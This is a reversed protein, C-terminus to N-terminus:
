SRTRGVTVHEVGVEFVRCDAVRQQSLVRVRVEDIPPSGARTPMRTWREAKTGTPLSVNAVVSVENAAYEGVEGMLVAADLYPAADVGAVLIMKAMLARVRANVQGRLSVPHTTLAMVIPSADEESATAYTVGWATDGDWHVVRGQSPGSVGVALDPQVGFTTDVAGSVYPAELQVVNTTPLTSQTSWVKDITHFVMTNSAFSNRDGSGHIIIRDRLVSLATLTGGEGSRGSSAFLRKYLREVGTERTVNVLGSTTLRYLGKWGAFYVGEDTVVPQGGMLGDDLTVTDVSAGVDRGDSEVAGRVVFVGREKFVFLSSGFSVIAVIGTGRGAEGHGIGPAVDLYANAQFLEAGRWVGSSEAQPASWRIRDPYTLGDVDWTHGVFARGLHGACARALMTSAWVTTAKFVGPKVSWWSLRQFRHLGGSFAAPFPRDVILTNTSTVSLIKFPRNYTTAADIWVYAGQLTNDWSVGSGTLTTGNLAGSVSGGQMLPSFGPNAAFRFGQNWADTPSAETGFRIEPAGFMEGGMLVTSGGSSYPGIGAAVGAASLQESELVTTIFGTGDALLFRPVYANDTTVYGLALRTPNIGFASPRTIGRLPLLQKAGTIPVGTYLRAAYLSALEATTLARNWIMPEDLKGDYPSSGDPNSGFYCGFTSSRPVYDNALTTTAAVVGNILLDATRGSLRLAVHVWVGATRTGAEGFSTSLTTGMALSARMVNGSMWLSWGKRPSTAGFDFTGAIISTTPFTDPKVWMAVTFTSPNLEAAYPVNAASSVTAGPFDIATGGDATAGAQGLVLDAGKTANRGAIADVLTTGSTEDFRWWAVPSTSQVTNIWSPYAPMIHKAHRKRWARGGLDPVCNTAELLAGPVGIRDTIIGRLFRQLTQGSKAM